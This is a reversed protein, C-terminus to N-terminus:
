ATRLRPRRRVHRLVSSPPGLVSLLLGRDETKPGRDSRHARDGRGDRLYIAPPSAPAPHPLASDAAPSPVPTHRPSARPQPRPPRPVSAARRTSDPAPPSSLAPPRSLLHPTASRAPAPARCDACPAPM